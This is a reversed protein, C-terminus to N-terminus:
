TSFLDDSLDAAGRLDPDEFWRGSLGLAVDWQVLAGARMAAALGAVVHEHPM